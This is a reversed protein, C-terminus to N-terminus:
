RMAAPTRGWDVRHAYFLKRLEPVAQVWEWWTSLAIGLREAIATSSGGEALIIERVHKLAARRLPGISCQMAHRLALAEHSAPRKKGAM